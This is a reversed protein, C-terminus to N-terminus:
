DLFGSEGRETYLTITNSTVCVCVCVCIYIYVCVCVCACVCVCVCVCVYIYIYVCVRVCVCVYVCVCMCVCLTHTVDAAIKLKTSSVSISLVSCLDLSQSCTYPSNFRSDLSPSSCTRAWVKVLRLTMGYCLSLCLSLFFYFFLFNPRFQKLWTGKPLRDLSPAIFPTPTRMITNM